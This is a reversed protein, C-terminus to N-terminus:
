GYMAAGTTLHVCALGVPGQYAFYFAIGSHVDRDDAIAVDGCGLTSLLAELAITHIGNHHPTGGESPRPYKLLYFVAQGGDRTPVREGKHPRLWM